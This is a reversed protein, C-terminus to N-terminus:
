QNILEIAKELVEDKGNKIGTITPEVIVDPVIGIRQTEQGDPYYIGIGSIMTRLGGPLLITSVNEMREPLQVEWLRLIIEPRFSMATYEAQSQSLENVLVVLKGPYVSETTPIELSPTFTFEGPNNFNGTTFKVFPTPSTVFYPALAFPMFLRHIIVFILLSEKPIKLNKKSRRFM